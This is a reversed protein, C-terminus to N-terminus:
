ELTFADHVPLPSRRCTSCWPRSSPSYPLLLNPLLDTCSCSAPTDPQLHNGQYSIQIIDSQTGSWRPWIRGAAPQHMQQQGFGGHEGRGSGGGTAECIAAAFLLLLLLASNSAIVPNM